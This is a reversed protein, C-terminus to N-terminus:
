GRVYINWGIFRQFDKILRDDPNKAKLIVNYRSGYCSIIGAKVANNLDPDTNPNYPDHEGYPLGHKAKIIIRCNNKLGLYDILGISDNGVFGYM